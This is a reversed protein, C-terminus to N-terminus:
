KRRLVLVVAIIVLVIILAAIAIYTIPLENSSNNTPTPSPTSTPTPTPTSTPTPTPSPSPSPSATTTTTTTTTPLPTPTPTPSPTPTPTPSPTPTPTPTTAPVLNTITIQTVSRGGSGDMLLGEPGIIVLRPAPLSSSPLSTGNVQYALILTIPQTQNTEAGTTNRYTKYGDNFHTGSNVMDYTFTNNGQGTVTINTNINIGGVQNCLYLVSVGTWLGSNGIHQNTQYFGGYMSVSSITQLQTLTYNQQTGNLGNVSLITAEQATVNTIVNFSITVTLISISLIFIIAQLRKQALRSTMKIKEKRTAIISSYM